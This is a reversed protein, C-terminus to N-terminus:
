APDVRKRHRPVHQSCISMFQATWCVAAQNVDMAVMNPWSASSLDLQLEGIVAKSYVFHETYYPKRQVSKKLSLHVTVPCHYAVAPLTTTSQVTAPQYTFILNLLSPHDPTTNYTPAHIVQQM